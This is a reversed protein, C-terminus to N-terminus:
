EGAYRKNLGEIVDETIEMSEQAYVINGADTAALIIKYSHKEGYEKLYANIDALVAQTAKYDEQQAQDKIARQYNILKEQKSNILQKSLEKEKSTMGRSDKEYAKIADQVEVTLTDINAQWAVAKKEYVARAAKMGEYENLLKNSDVYALQYKGFSLYASLGILSLLFFLNIFLQNKSKMATLTM